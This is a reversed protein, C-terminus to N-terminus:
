DRSFAKAVANEFGGLSFVVKEVDDLWSALARDRPSAQPDAAVPPWYGHFGEYNEPGPPGHERRALDGGRLGVDAPAGRARDAV